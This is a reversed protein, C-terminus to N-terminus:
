EPNDAPERTRAAWRGTATDANTEGQLVTDLRERLERIAQDREALRSALHAIVQADTADDLRPSMTVVDADLDIGLVREVQRAANGRPRRGAEWGQVTRIDVGVARALADQTLDLDQRARRIRDALGHPSPV